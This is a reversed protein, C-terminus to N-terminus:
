ELEKVIKLIEDFISDFDSIAIIKYELFKIPNLEDIQFMEDIKYVGICLSLDCVFIVVRIEKCNCDLPYDHYIVKFTDKYMYFGDEISRYGYDIFSELIEHYMLDIEYEEFLKFIKNEKKMM